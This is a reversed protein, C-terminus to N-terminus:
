VQSVVELEYFPGDEEVARQVRVIESGQPDALVMSEIEDGLQRRLQNKFTQLHAFRELDTPSPLYGQDIRRLFEFLTLDIDIRGLPRQDKRELYLSITTPAYEVYSLAEKPPANYLETRAAIPESALVNYAMQTLGADLRLQVAKGELVDSSGEKIRDSKVLARTVLGVLEDVDRKAHARGTRSLEGRDLNWACALLKLFESLNPHFV